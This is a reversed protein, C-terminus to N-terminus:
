AKEVADVADVADILQRIEDFHQKALKTRSCGPNKTSLCTPAYFLRKEAALGAIRSAESQVRIRLPFILGGCAVCNAEIALARLKLAEPLRQFEIRPSASRGPLASRVTTHLFPRIEKWFELDVLLSM